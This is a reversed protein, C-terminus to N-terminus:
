RNLAAKNRGMYQKSEKELWKLAQQRDVHIDQYNEVRYGSQPNYTETKRNDEKIGVVHGGRSDLELPSIASIKCKQWYEKAIDQLFGNETLAPIRHILTGSFQIHGDAGAQKLGDALDFVHGTIDAFDWGSHKAQRYLENLPMRTTAADSQPGGHKSKASHVASMLKGIPQWWLEMTVLLLALAVGLLTATTDASIIVAAGRIKSGIVQAWVELPVGAALLARPVMFGLVALGASRLLLWFTRM